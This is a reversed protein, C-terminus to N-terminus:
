EKKVLALLCRCRAHAPPLSRYSGDGMLFQGDIPVDKNAALYPVPECIPCLREDISVTWAKRWADQELVGDRMAQRWLLDQGTNVSTISETKGINEGRLRVLSDAYRQVRRQIEDEGIGDDRLQQEFLSVSYAHEATLGFREQIQAVIVELTVGAEKGARIIAQIGDETTATLQRILMTHYDEIAERVFAADTQLMASVGQQALEHSAVSGARSVGETFYRLLPDLADQWVQFPLIAYVDALAGQELAALLGHQNIAARAIRLSEIFTERYQPELRDAIGALAEATSARRVYAPAPLATFDKAAPVVELSATNTTAAQVPIKQVPEYPRDGDDWPDDGALARHENFTFANPATRYVKLRYEKDDPIPSEYEIYLDDGFLPVLWRQYCIRAFELRPTLCYKAFHLDSADITARNSNTLIGLLEPAVGFVQVITDRQQDLLPGLNLTGIDNQLKTVTVDRDLWLIKFANLVGQHKARWEAALSTMNKSTLGGGTVLMSPTADNYFFTRMYQTGFEHVEVQDSVASAAGKGRQYPRYPDPDRLHIILDKPIEAERNGARYTDFQVKYTPHYADPLERVWHPPLPWLEEIAGQENPLLMLFAEGVLDMYVQTLLKVSLGPLVSNGYDMVDLLEHEDVREYEQQAVAKAYYAARQTPAWSIHAATRTRRRPSRIRQYLYWQTSAISRAILHCCARLWPMESYARLFNIQFRSPAASQGLSFLLPDVVENGNLGNPFSSARQTLASTAAIYADTSTYPQGYATFISM